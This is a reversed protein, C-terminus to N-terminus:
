TPAPMASRRSPVSRDISNREGGPTNCTSLCAERRRTERRGLPVRAVDLVRREGDDPTALRCPPPVALWPTVVPRTIDFPPLPTVTVPPTPSVVHLVITDNGRAGCAPDATVLAAGPHEGTCPASRRRRRVTTASSTM